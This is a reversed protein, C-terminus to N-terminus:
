KVAVHCLSSGRHLIQRTIFHIKFLHPGIREFLFTWVSIEKIVEEEVETEFVYEPRHKAWATAGGFNVYHEILWQGRNEWLARDDCSHERRTMDRNVPCLLADVIQDHNYKTIDLKKVKHKERVTINM